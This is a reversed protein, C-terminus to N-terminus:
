NECEPKQPFNELTFASNKFAQGVFALGSVLLAM